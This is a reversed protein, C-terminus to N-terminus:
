SVAEIPEHVQAAYARLVPSEQFINRSELLRRGLPPFVSGTPLLCGSSRKPASTPGDDTLCLGILCSAGIYCFRM